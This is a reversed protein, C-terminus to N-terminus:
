QIQALLEFEVIAASVQGNRLAGSPTIRVQRVNPDFGGNPAYTFPATPSTTNAFTVQATSCCSIGSVGTENFLVASTSGGHAGTFLAIDDPLLDTITVSGDDLQSGANTLRIVYRVTAGPVRLGNEGVVVSSQKDVTLNPQPFATIIINDIGVAEDSQNIDAVFRLDLNAGPNSIVLRVRHIQDTWRTIFGLQITNDTLPTVSWDVSGSTGSRAADNGDTGARGQHFFPLSFVQTGGVEVEFHDGQDGDWSDIELFDFEVVVFDTDTPLAFNRQTSTSPSGPRFRGLFRGTIANTESTNSSWGSAGSQFDDEYVITQAAVSAGYAALLAAFLIHIIHRPWQMITELEVFLTALM